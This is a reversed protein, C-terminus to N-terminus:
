LDGKPSTTNFCYHLYCKIGDGLGVAVLLVLPIGLLSGAKSTGYLVWLLSSYAYLRFTLKPSLLIAKLKKADM